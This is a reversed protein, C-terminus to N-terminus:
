RARPGRRLRRAPRQRALGVDGDDAAPDRPRRRGVVECALTDVDDQELARLEVALCGPRVCAAEVELDRDVLEGRPLGLARAGPQQRVHPEVGLRRPEPRRELAVELRREAHVGGAAEHDGLRRRLQLDQVVLVHDLLLGAELRVDQLAVLQPPECRVERVVQEAPRETRVLPVRVRKERRREERQARGLAARDDARVGLDRADTGAERELRRRAREVRVADHVRGAGPRVVEGGQAAEAQRDVGLPQVDVDGFRALVDEVREHLVDAAAQRELLGRVAGEDDAAAPGRM